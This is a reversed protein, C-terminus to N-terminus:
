HFCFCVVFLLVLLFESVAETEKIIIVFLAPILHSFCLKATFPLYYSM